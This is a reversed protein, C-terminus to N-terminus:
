NQNRSILCLMIICFLLDASIMSFTTTLKLLIFVQILYLHIHSQVKVTYNLIKFHPQLLYKKRNFVPWFETQLILSLLVVSCPALFLLNLRKFINWRQIETDQRCNTSGSWKLWLSLVCVVQKLRVLGYGCVNTCLCWSYLDQVCFYWM